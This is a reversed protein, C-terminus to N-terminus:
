QYEYVVVGKDINKKFNDDKLLGYNFLDINDDIILSFNQMLTRYEKSNKCCYDSIWCIDIDSKNRCDDRIASGFIIVKKIIRGQDNQALYELGREVAKKKRENIRDLNKIMIYRWQRCM